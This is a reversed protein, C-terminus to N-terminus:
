EVIFQRMIQALVPWGDIHCRIASAAIQPPHHARDRLSLIIALGKCAVPACVPSYASCFKQFLSFLGPAADGVGLDTLGAATPLTGAGTCACLVAGCTTGWAM